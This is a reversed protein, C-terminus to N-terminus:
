LSRISDRGTGAVPGHDDEWHEGNLWTAPHMIFKPDRADGVVLAKYSRMGDFLTRATAKVLAKGYAKRADARGVKRPVTDWWIGFAGDIEEATKQGDMTKYTKQTKIPPFHPDAGIVDSSEAGISRHSDAGIDPSEARGDPSEAQDDAVRLSRTQDWKGELHHAISTVYGETVLWTVIRKVQDTSLGTEDAIQERTARWWYLGDVEVAERYDQSARFYIRTLVVARNADGGLERILGARVGIFDKATLLSLINSM